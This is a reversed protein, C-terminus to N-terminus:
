TGVPPTDVRRPEPRVGGIPWSIGMRTLHDSTHHYIEVCPDLDDPDGCAIGQCWVCVLSTRDRGLSSHKLPRLDHPVGGDVCRRVAPDEATRLRLAGTM